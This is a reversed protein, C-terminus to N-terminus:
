HLNTRVKINLKSLIKKIRHGEMKLLHVSHMTEAVVIENAYLREVGEEKWITIYVCDPKGLYNILEADGITKKM